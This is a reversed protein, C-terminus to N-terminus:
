VKKSFLRVLTDYSDSLEKAEKFNGFNVYGIGRTFRGLSGFRVGWDDAIILEPLDKAKLGPHKKLEKKNLSYCSVNKAWDFFPGEDDIFAFSFSKEPSSKILSHIELLNDWLYPIERHPALVKVSQDASAMMYKLVLGIYDMSANSIIENKRSDIAEAIYDEYSSRLNKFIM